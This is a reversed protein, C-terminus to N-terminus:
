EFIQLVNGRKLSTKELIVLTKSQMGSEVARLGEMMRTAERHVSYNM